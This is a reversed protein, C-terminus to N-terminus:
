VLRAMKSAGIFWKDPLYAIYAFGTFPLFHHSCMSTFHIKDSILMQDYGCDNPFKSFFEEKPEVGINVFFENKYMREIRNPTDKLNPDDIWTEGFLDYMLDIYPDSM